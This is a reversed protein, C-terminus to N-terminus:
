IIQHRFSLRWLASVKVILVSSIETFSFNVVAIPLTYSCHLALPKWHFTFHWGGDVNKVKLPRLLIVFLSRYEGSLLKNMTAVREWRVNGSLFRRCYKGASNTRFTSKLRSKYKKRLYNFLNKIFLHHFIELKWNYKTNMNIFYDDFM